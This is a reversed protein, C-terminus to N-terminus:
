ETEKSCIEPWFYIDVQKIEKKKFQPGLIASELHHHGKQQYKEDHSTINKMM